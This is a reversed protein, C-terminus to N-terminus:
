TPVLSSFHFGSVRTVSAIALLAQLALLALWTRTPSARLFPAALWSTWPVLFLWLRAAEGMNKGSLWLLAWVALCCWAPAAIRPDSSDFRHLLGAAAVLALPVGTALLLELPNLLLWATYSRPHQPQNYFDAHNGLNAIWTTLLNLDYVGWCVAIPLALGGLTGVSTELVRRWPRRGPEARAVTWTALGIGLAAVPLFALSLCLGVWLVTGAALPRWWGGHHLGSWWLWLSTTALLPFLCDSKPLFIAVAPVLPWFVAARWAVSPSHDVRVLAYLPLVTAAAALQTLLSGLWLAALDLEALPRDEVEITALSERVSAPQTAILVRRLGSSGRCWEVLRHHFLFLGPPHTGLHLTRRTPDQDNLVSDYDALFETTSDIENRAHFYYGSSSPYYLVWPNRALGYGYPASDQLGWLWGFGAAVLVVLWGTRSTKGLTDFRGGGAAVALYLGGAAIAVLCGILSDTREGAPHRIREWTWEGAVGLPLDTLWLLGMALVACVALVTWFLPFRMRNAGLKLTLRTAQM